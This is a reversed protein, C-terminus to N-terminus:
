RRTETPTASRSPSSTAQRVAQALVQARSTLHLKHLINRMHFKVTNESIGLREALQRNTTIGAVMLDTIEAERATLRGDGQSRGSGGDTVNDLLRRAVSPSLAPEGRAVGALLQLFRDARLNKLLYGQAGYRVASALAADDEVATLIVVPLGPAKVTLTRLADLGDTGPMRLDM